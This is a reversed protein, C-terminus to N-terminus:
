HDLIPRVQLALEGLQTQLGNLGELVGLGDVGRNLAREV